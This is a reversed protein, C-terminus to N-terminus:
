LSKCRSIDVKEGNKYCMPYVQGNETYDESLGHRKGDKYTSKYHLQGNEYYSENLGNPKEDKYTQKWSLQGDEYYEEYIGNLKGDKYTAKTDLQGNEYYVTAVGTFGTQSNIEYKLGNRELLKDYPVESPACASLLFVCLLVPLKKM